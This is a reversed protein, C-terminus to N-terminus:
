SYIIKEALNQDKGDTTARQIATIKTHRHSSGFDPDEKKAM